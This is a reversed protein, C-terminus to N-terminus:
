FSADGLGKGAFRVRIFFDLLDEPTWFEGVVVPHDQCHPGASFRGFSMAGDAYM